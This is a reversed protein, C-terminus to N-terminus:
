SRLQTENSKTGDWHVTNPLDQSITGAHLPYTHHPGMQQQLQGWWTGSLVVIYRDKDHFHPTSFHGPNWRVLQGYIGPKSLTVLSMTPRIAGNAHKDAPCTGAKGQWPIDKPLIFPVHTPDPKPAGSDQAMAASGAIVAAAGLLVKHTVKMVVRRTFYAKCQAPPFNARIRASSAPPTTPTAWARIGPKRPYPCLPRTRDVTRATTLRSGILTAPAQNKTVWADIAEVLDHQPDHQLAPSADGINGVGPGGSCHAIGPLMFLRYFADPKGIKAVM